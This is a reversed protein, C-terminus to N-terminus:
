ALRYFVATHVGFYINYSQLCSISSYCRQHEIQCIMMKELDHFFPTQRLQSLANQKRLLIICILQVILDFICLVTGIVAFIRGATDRKILAAIAFGIGTLCILINLWMIFHVFMGLFVLVLAVVGIIASIMGLISGPVREAKKIPRGTSDLIEPTVPAKPESRKQYSERFQEDFRKEQSERFMADYDREQSM